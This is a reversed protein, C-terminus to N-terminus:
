LPNAEIDKLVFQKYFFPVILSSVIAESGRRTGGFHPEACMCKANNLDFDNVRAANLDLPWRVGDNETRLATDKIDIQDIIQGTSMVLSIVGTNRYNADDIKEVRWHVTLVQQNPKLIAKWPHYIDNPLFIKRILLADSGYISLFYKDHTQDYQLVVVHGESSVTLELADTLNCLWKTKRHDEITIKWICLIGTNRETVYLCKSATSSVLSKPQRFGELSILMLLDFPTTDEYVRISLYIDSM